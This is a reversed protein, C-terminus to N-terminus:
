RPSRKTSASRKPHRKSLPARRHPVLGHRPRKNSDLLTNAVSNESGGVCSADAGHLECVNVTVLKKGELWLELLLVYIELGLAQLQMEGATLWGGFLQVERDVQEAE